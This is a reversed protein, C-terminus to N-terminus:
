KQSLGWGADIKEEKKRKKKKRNRWCKQHRWQKRPYNRLARFIRPWATMGLIHVHVHIDWFVWYISEPKVKNYYNYLVVCKRFLLRNYVIQKIWPDVMLCVGYFWRTVVLTEKTSIIITGNALAGNINKIGLDYNEKFNKWFILLSTILIVM